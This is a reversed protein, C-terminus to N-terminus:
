RKKSRTKEREEKLMKIRKACDNRKIELKKIRIENRYQQPKNNEERIQRTFNKKKQQYGYINM